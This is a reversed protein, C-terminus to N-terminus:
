AAPHFHTYVTEATARSIGPAKMLDELNAAKVARATGFHMLLAKKRAPGIGPVEDLSSVGLAKARKQRHAGIAFRHAEDRLRQIFFLLPDNTPLTLERGDPLHFVERGANRDPGKAVGVIPVDQVGLEALASVVASVQGKGGDILLLDPWNGQSRDPDEDTLRAFRRSLMARMMAFDDGAKVDDPRMNYKRYQGKLLGEPGAVVMAGLANTGQIHSNDYIEIRRPPAELAFLEALGRMHAAQTSSEALRRDLAETANRVAQQMLRVREGRVPRMLSVKRGARASLADELVASEELTRDLIVTPPPKMDEYFQGLFSTLVEDEPVDSVHSPFFARHGWNQGGRIFFAQICQVGDRSALAFIDADLSGDGTNIAQTGQVYTLARLRDRFVAAREFDKADAADQMERGLRKQIAISKGGLFLKADAVLAAYSEQDIRGTCPASCRRIQHLLCPRSRNAFFSDSCSRLLFVKQLANLTVSVSGASAFPGYYSAKEERPGRHKAIRAFPHSERLVIFPFSKDDRLLVNYPPRFRKILQAELLLAEAESNTVVITMARTQSVMRQLRRPM